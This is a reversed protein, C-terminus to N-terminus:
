PRRKAGKKNNRRGLRAAKAADALKREREPTAAIIGARMARWKALIPDVASSKATTGTM